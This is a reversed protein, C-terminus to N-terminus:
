RPCAARVREALAARPHEQLFREAEERGRALDGADCLAVVRLAQREQALVGQSFRQAHEDLLRLARRAEGGSLALKARKLLAMEQSLPDAGADGDSDDDGDRHTRSATRSRPRTGPETPASVPEFAASRSEEPSPDDPSESEELPQASPEQEPPSSADIDSRPKTTSPHRPATSHDNGQEDVEFPAQMTSSESSTESLTRGGIWVLALAAAIALGGAVWGGVSRARRQAIDGDIRDWVRDHIEAPIEDEARLAELLTLAEDDLEVDDHQASSEIM